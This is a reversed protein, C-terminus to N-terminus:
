PILGAGFDRRELLLTAAAMLLVSIAVPLLLPWWRDGSYPFTRQGWGIPSFWSLLGNGTDGAARLVFAAGLVAGVSGYAARANEFVQAAVATLAAFTFGVAAVAAGFLISGGVPLGTGAAVAFVLVGAAVDALAALGLAAAPLAHRGVQTSRILEARGTEEDARTQRGILFMNMLAVVIALFSFIEFVVEGGVSELLGPPGSMAIVATNGGITSRLKALEEATGYLSQSQTSQVLVLLTTGLLWWPLTARERRMMFRLLSPAGATKAFATM